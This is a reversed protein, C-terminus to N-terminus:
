VVFVVSCCCHDKGMRQKAISRWSYNGFEKSGMAGQAGWYGNSDYSRDQIYIIFKITISSNYM